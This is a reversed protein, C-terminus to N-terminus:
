KKMVTTKKVKVKLNLNISALADLGKGSLLDGGHDQDLHLLGGLGVQPLLHGMGDDSDRGVEVVSLSLGGLVGSGTSAEDDHPDDILRCGGGNGVTHVLFVTLLVHQDKIKAATSEIDRQQGDVVAHELHHGGVPVGMETALVKILSDHLVEDRQVLFLLALVQPLVLM